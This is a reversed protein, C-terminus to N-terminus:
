FCEFLKQFNELTDKSIKINKAYTKFASSTSAHKVNKGKEDVIGFQKADDQSFLNEISKFDKNVDAVSVSKINSTECVKGMDCGPKDNDVLVIPNCLNLKLIENCINKQKTKYGKGNIKGVGNIPIFIVDEIKLITKFAVLYNYDTIGEVFVVKKTNDILVHRDVGLAEIVNLLTDPAGMKVSSFDNCISPLDDKTVVIRLDDLYDADVLFPSNTTVVITIDNKIAFDKLFSRLMKQSNARLHTAPEDMVFIDGSNVEKICLLNFFMNFFWRFGVSQNDLNIDVNKKFLALVIKESELYIKFQYSAKKLFYLQNFKKAITKLNENIKDQLKELPLRKKQKKLQEYAQNIEEKSIKITSFLKKFFSSKDLETALIELEDGNIEENQYIHVNPIFSVGTSQQCYKNIVDEKTKSANYKIFFYSNPHANKTMDYAKLYGSGQKCKSLYNSMFVDLEKLFKEKKIEGKLLQEMLQELNEYFSKLSNKKMNAIFTKLIEKVDKDKEKNLYFCEPENMGLKLAFSENEDECKLTIYPPIIKSDSNLNTVDNESLKKSNIASIGDLINTKGLNNEGVIVVLNGLKGKEFSYNLVIKESNKVGMNRYNEFTISREM